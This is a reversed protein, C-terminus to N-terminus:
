HSLNWNNIPANKNSNNNHSVIATMCWAHTCPFFFFFFFGVLFGPFIILLYSFTYITRKYYIYYLLLWSKLITNIKKRFLPKNRLSWSGARTLDERPGKERFSIHQHIWHQRNSSAPHIAQSTEYGYKYLVLRHNKCQLYKWKKTLKLSAIQVARM